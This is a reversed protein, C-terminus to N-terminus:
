LEFVYSWGGARNRNQSLRKRDRVKILNAVSFPIAMETLHRISILNVMHRGPEPPDFDYIGSEYGHRKIQSDIEVRTPSDLKTKDTWGIITASYSVNPLDDSTSIYLRVPNLVTPPAKEFEKIANTKYPQLYFTEEPERSQARLIGDLVHRYVGNLFLAQRRM